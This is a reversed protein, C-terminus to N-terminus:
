RAVSWLAQALTQCHATASGRLEVRLRAGDADVMELVCDAASAFLPIELFERGAAPESESVELPSEARKKLGYYDLGLAHATKSVGCERAAGAAAQWLGEPIRTGRKRSQRWREFQSQVDSLIDRSPRHPGQKM